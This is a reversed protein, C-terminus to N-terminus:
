RALEATLEDATIQRCYGKIANLSAKQRGEGFTACADTVQTVLYGLDCADRIPPYGLLEPTYPDCIVALGDESELRFAAQGYWTLKM